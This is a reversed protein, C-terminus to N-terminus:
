IIQRQRKGKASSLFVNRARRCKALAAFYQDAKEGTLWGKALWKGMANRVRSIGGISTRWARDGGSCRGSSRSVTSGWEHAVREISFRDCMEVSANLQPNIRPRRGVLACRVTGEGRFIGAALASDIEREPRQVDDM